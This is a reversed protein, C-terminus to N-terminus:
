IIIDNKNGQHNLLTRRDDAIELDGESLAELITNAFINTETFVMSTKGGKATPSTKEDGNFLVVLNETLRLCYLRLPFGSYNISLKGVTYNGSPPLAHASDEFRFFHQFREKKM